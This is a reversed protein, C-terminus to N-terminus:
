VKKEGVSTKLLEYLEDLERYQSYLVEVNDLVNIIRTKLGKSLDNQVEELEVDFIPLTLFVYNDVIYNDIEPYEYGDEILLSAVTSDLSLAPFLSEVGVDKLAFLIDRMGYYAGFDRYMGSYSVFRGFDIVTSYRNLLNTIASPIIEKADVSTCKSYYELKEEPTDGKLEKPIFGKNEFMKVFRAKYGIDCDFDFYFSFKDVNLSIGPFMALFECIEKIEEVSSGDMSYSLKSHYKYMDYLDRRYCSDLFSSLNNISDPTDFSNLITKFPGGFYLSLRSVYESLTKKRNVSLIQKKINYFSKNYTLKTGGDKSDPPNIINFLDESLHNLIMLDSVEDLVKKLPENSLYNYIMDERLDVQSIPIYSLLYKYEDLSKIYKNEDEEITSNYFKIKEFVEEAMNYDVNGEDDVLKFYLVESLNKMATPTVKSIDKIRSYVDYYSKSELSYKYLGSKELTLILSAISNEKLRPYINLQNAVIKTINGLSKKDDTVKFLSDGIMVNLDRFEKCIAEWDYEVSINEDLELNNEDNSDINSIFHVEHYQALINSVEIDSPSYSVAQISSGDRKASELGRGISRCRSNMKDLVQTRLLHFTGCKDCAVPSALFNDSGDINLITIFKKPFPSLYPEDETSCENCKFHTITKGDTYFDTFISNKNLRLAGIFSDIVGSDGLLNSLVVRNSMLKLSNVHELVTGLKDMTEKLRDVWSAFLVRKSDNNVSGENLGVLDFLIDSDTNRGSVIEALVKDSIQSDVFWPTQNETSMVIKQVMSQDESNKYSLNIKNGFTSIIENLKKFSYMSSEKVMVPIKSSDIYKLSKSKKVRETSDQESLYLELELDKGGELDSEDFLLDNSRESNSDEWEVDVPSIDSSLNPNDVVLPEGDENFDEIEVELVEDLVSSYGNEEEATREYDRM